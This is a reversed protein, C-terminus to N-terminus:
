APIGELDLTEKLKNILVELERTIDNDLSKVISLREESDKIIMEPTAFFTKWIDIGHELSRLIARRNDLIDAASIARVDDNSIRLHDLYARKRETWDTISKDDTVGAVLRSIKEGFKEKIDEESYETDEVVDHLIGAVIVSESYGASQLIFGVSLPHIIYPRDDNRLQDKHALLSFEIAETITPSIVPKM